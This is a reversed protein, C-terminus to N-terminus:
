AAPKPAFPNEVRVGAYVQGASLDESVLRRCGLHVASQVIMADWFSLGATEQLTIADLVDEVGPMHIQWHGLDAVLQRALARDLPRQIKQTVTVYFEQLVQISLCGNGANWTDQLLAKARRYKEGASSDHAYVLVNTDIFIRAPREANM